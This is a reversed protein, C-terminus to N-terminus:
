ETERRCAELGAHAHVRTVYPWVRLRIPVGEDLRPYADFTMTRDVRCHTSHLAYFRDLPLEAVAVRCPSSLLSTGPSLNAVGIPRGLVLTMENPMRSGLWGTFRPEACDEIV